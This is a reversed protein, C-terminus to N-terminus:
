PLTFTPYKTLLYDLGYKRYVERQIGDCEQELKIIEAMLKQAEEDNQQYKEDTLSGNKWSEFTDIYINTVLISNKYDQILKQHVEKM